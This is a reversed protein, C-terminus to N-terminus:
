KVCNLKPPIWIVESMSNTVVVRNSSLSLYFLKAVRFESISNNGKVQM